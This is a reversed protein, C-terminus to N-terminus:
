VCAGCHAVVDGGSNKASVSIIIFMRITKREFFSLKVIYTISM